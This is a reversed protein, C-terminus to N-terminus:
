GEISRRLEGVNMPGLLVQNAVVLDALEVYAGVRELFDGRLVILVLARRDPDWAADVLFDVLARREEEAVTPAFVEEFQDVALVLREEPRVRALANTLEGVPRDGPRILLGDDEIAPLLGARLLSSKGSGSPGVVALLPADSLRAALEGVLRERGFFFEADAAEFPALGKFPCVNRFRTTASRQGNG